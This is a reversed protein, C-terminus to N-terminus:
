RQPIDAQPFSSNWEIQEEWNPKREVGIYSSHDRQLDGSMRTWSSTKADLNSDLYSARFAELAHDPVVWGSLEKLAAVEEDGGMEQPDVEWAGLGEQYHQNSKFVQSIQPM